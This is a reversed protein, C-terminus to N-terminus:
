LSVEVEQAIQPDSINIFSRIYQAYDDVVQQHTDFVNM